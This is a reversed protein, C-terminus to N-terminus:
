YGIAVWTFSSAASLTFRTNTASSTTINRTMVQNSRPQAMCVFSYQDTFPIPFTITADNTSSQFGWQVILGNGLKVYSLQSVSAFKSDVTTLLSNALASAVGYAVGTLTGGSKPLYNALDNAIASNLKTLFHELGTEDLYNKSAM